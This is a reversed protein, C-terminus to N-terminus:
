QLDTVLRPERLSHLLIGKVLSRLYLSIWRKPSENWFQHGDINQRLSALLNLKENGNGGHAIVSRYSYLKSIITDPNPTTFGSMILDTEGEIRNNLLIINRKLQRTISDISDNAAPNHSLLSEMIAFYGLHKLPSVDKIADNDIFMKIAEVIHSYENDNFQERLAVLEGVNDWHVSLPLQSSRGFGFYGGVQDPNFMISKSGGIDCLTSEAWIDYSSLRLAEKLKNFKPIGDSKSKVVLYRFDNPSTLRNMHTRNDEVVINMEQFPVFDFSGIIDMFHSSILKIDEPNPKDIVWDCIEIPVLSNSDIDNYIILYNQEKLEVQRNM